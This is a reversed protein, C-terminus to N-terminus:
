RIGWFNLTGVPINDAGTLNSVEVAITTAGTSSAATIAFGGYKAETVIGASLSSTAQVFVKFTTNITGSTLTCVLSRTSSAAVSVQGLSCTGQVLGSVLGLGGRNGGVILGTTSAATAATVPEAGVVEFTTNPASSNIGIRDASGDLFFLNAATAGEMRVDVDNASADNITLADAMTVAGTLTSAGTVTLNGDTSISTSITTAGYTVLAVLGIAMLSAFAIGSVRQM